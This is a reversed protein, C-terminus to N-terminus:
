RYQAAQEFQKHFDPGLIQQLRAQEEDRV